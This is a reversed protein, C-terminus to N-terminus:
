RRDREERVAKRVAERDSPTTVFLRDGRRKIRPEPVDKSKVLRFIVTEEDLVENVLTDGPQFIAPFVARRRSDLKTAGVSKKM